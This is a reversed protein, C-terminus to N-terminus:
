KPAFRKQERILTEVDVVTLFRERFLLDILRIGSDRANGSLDRLEDGTIRRRQLLYQDIEMRGLLLDATLPLVPDNSEIYGRDLCYKYSSLVAAPSRTEETLVDSLSRGLGVEILTQRRVQDLSPNTLALKGFQTQKFQSRLLREIDFAVLPLSGTTSRELKNLVPVADDVLDSFANAPATILAGAGPPVAPPSFNLAEYDNGLNKRPNHDSLDNIAALAAEVEAM